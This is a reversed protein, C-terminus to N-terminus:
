KRHAHHRCAFRHAGNGRDRAAAFLVLAAWRIVFCQPVDTKMAKFASDALAFIHPPLSANSANRYM